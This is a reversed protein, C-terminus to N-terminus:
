EQKTSKTRTEVFKGICYTKLLNLAAPTHKHQKTSEGNHFIDSVDQGFYQSIIKSGGPHLKQGIFTTVDYVYGDILLWCASQASMVEFDNRNINPLIDDEGKKKMKHALRGWVMGLSAFGDIFFTTPNHQWLGYESTRYDYPYAHHYNHWGEGAALISVLLNERPLINPLYPRDGWLHALSNVCWTAHLTLMYRAFGCVWLGKMYEGTILGTILAPFIFCMFPGFWAQNEHQFKLIKNENLDDMYVSRGAIVVEPAKQHLLWGVHSYWFGQTADHPDKETDVHAHHVRHDRAWKLVSGQNACASMLMLLFEVSSSASYTRHAWLRHAGATIGINSFYYFFLAMGLIGWSRAQVLSVIEFCGYIGFVHMLGLYIINFWHPGVRFTEDNVTITSSKSAKSVKSYMAAVQFFDESDQYIERKTKALPHFSGAQFHMVVFPILWYKFVGLYGTKIVLAPFFICAFLAISFFQLAVWAVPHNFKSRAVILQSNVNISNAIRHLVLSMCTRDQDKASNVRDYHLSLIPKFLVLLSIQGFIRSFWVSSFPRTEVISSCSVGCRYLNNMAFAIVLYGTLASINLLSNSNYILYAGLLYLSIASVFWFKVNIGKLLKKPVNNNKIGEYVSKSSESVKTLASAMVDASRQSFTSM